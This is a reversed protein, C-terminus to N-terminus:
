FYFSYCGAAPYFYLGSAQNIGNDAGYPGTTNFGHVKVFVVLGHM